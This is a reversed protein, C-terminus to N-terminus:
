WRGDSPSFARAHSRPASPRAKSGSGALPKVAPPETTPHVGWSEPETRLRRTGELALRDVGNDLRGEGVDRDGVEDFRELGILCPPFARREHGDVVM